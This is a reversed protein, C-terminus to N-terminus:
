CRYLNGEPAKQEIVQPKEETVQIEVDETPVETNGKSSLDDQKGFDSEVTSDEVVVPATFKVKEVLQEPPPPPPPPPPAEETPRDMMEASVTNEKERILNKRNM